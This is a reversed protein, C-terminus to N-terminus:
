RMAIFVNQMWTLISFHAICRQHSMSQCAGHVMDDRVLNGHHHHAAMKAWIPGCLLFSVCLCGHCGGHHHPHHQHHLFCTLTQRLSSLWAAWQPEVYFLDTVKTQGHWNDWIFIWDYEGVPSTWDPSTRYDVICEWLKVAFRSLLQVLLPSTKFHLFFFPEM